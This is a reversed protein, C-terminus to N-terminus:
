MVYKREAKYCTMKGAKVAEVALKKNEFSYSKYPRVRKYGRITLDEAVRCHSILHVENTKWGSKEVRPVYM